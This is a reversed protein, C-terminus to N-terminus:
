LKTEVIDPLIPPTIHGPERAVDPLIPPTIHGPERAVDPLIFPRTHGPERAVDPLIHSTTHEPERAVDPLIPPTTHGPERAVDPLISPVTNGPERIINLGNHGSMIGAKLGTKRSVAPAQARTVPTLRCILKKADKIIKNDYLVPNIVSNIPLILVSLLAYWPSASITGM